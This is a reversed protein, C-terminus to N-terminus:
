KEKESVLIDGVWLKDGVDFISERIFAEVFYSMVADVRGTYDRRGLIPIVMNDDLSTIEGRVLANKLDIHELNLRFNSM